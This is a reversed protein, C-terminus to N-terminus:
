RFHEWGGANLPMRRGDLETVEILPRGRRQAKMRGIARITVGAIKAPMKTQPSGAFLLEYDEGGHLALHFASPIWGDEEAKQALPHVPIAAVDIEAALGSEECLHTLDTSIGDSV